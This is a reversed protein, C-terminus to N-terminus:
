MPEEATRNGLEDRLRQNERTLQELRAGLRDYEHDPPDLDELSGHLQIAHAARRARIDRRLDVLARRAEGTVEITTRETSADADVRALIARADLRDRSM